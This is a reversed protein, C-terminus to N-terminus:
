HTTDVTSTKYIIEKEPDFPRGNVTVNEFTIDEVRRHADYHTIDCSESEGLDPCRMLSIYIHRIKTM